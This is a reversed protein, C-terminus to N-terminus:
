EEEEVVILKGPLSIKANATRNNEQKFRYALNCLAKKPSVARTSAEWNNAIIKDFELVPGKYSYKTM